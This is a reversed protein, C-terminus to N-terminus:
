KKKLEIKKKIQIDFFKNKFNDVEWKKNEIYGVFEEIETKLAKNEDNWIIIKDYVEKLKELKSDKPEHNEDWDFGYIENYAEEVDFLLSDVKESSENTNWLNTDIKTISEEIKNINDITDRLLQKLEWANMWNITRSM